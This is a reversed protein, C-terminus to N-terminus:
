EGTVANNRKQAALDMMRATQYKGDSNRSLQGASWIKQLLRRVTNAKKRLRIAIDSAEVPCRGAAPAIIDGREESVTADDGGGVKRWGFPAEQCLQLGYVKEEM